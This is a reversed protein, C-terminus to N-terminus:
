ATRKLDEALPVKKIGLRAERLNSLADLLEEVRPDKRNGALYLETARLLDEQDMDPREDRMRRGNIIALLDTIVRNSSGWPVNRDNAAKRIDGVIALKEEYSISDGRLRLRVLSCTRDFDHPRLAAKM